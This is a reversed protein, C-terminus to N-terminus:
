LAEREAEERYAKFELTQANVLIHLKDGFEGSKFRKGMDDTMREFLWCLESGDSSAYRRVARRYGIRMWGVFQATTSDRVHPQDDHYLEYNAIRLSETIAEQLEDDLGYRLPRTARVPEATLEGDRVQELFRALDSAISKAYNHGYGRAAFWGGEGRVRLLAGIAQLEETLSNQSTPAFHELVDHAIAISGAINFTPQNQLIWGEDGHEEDERWEFIRHIM